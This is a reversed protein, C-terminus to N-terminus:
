PKATSTRTMSSLFASLPCAPEGRRRRAYDPVRRDPILVRFQVAHRFLGTGPSGQRQGDHGVPRRRPGQGPGSRAPDVLHWSGRFRRLRGRVPRARDGDCQGPDPGAALAPAEGRDEFTMQGTVRATVTSGNESIQYKMGYREQMDSFTANECVKGDIQCCVGADSGPRRKTSQVTEGNGHRQIAGCAVPVVARM